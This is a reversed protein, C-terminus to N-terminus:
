YLPLAHLIVHPSVYFKKKMAGKKGSQGDLQGCVSGQILIIEIYQCPHPYLKEKWFHM